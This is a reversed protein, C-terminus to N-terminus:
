HNIRVDMFSSPGGKSLKMSIERESRECLTHSPSFSASCLPHKCSLTWGNRGYLGTPGLHVIDLRTGDTTITGKLHLQVSTPLM